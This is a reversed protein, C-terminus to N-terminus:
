PHSILLDFREPPMVTAFYHDEASSWRAEWDARYAHGDRELLQSRRLDRPIDMLVRLDLLDHLEPRCSYAGEVIIVPTARAVLPVPALPVVESEWDEADWDFSHWEAARGSRLSDLVERQRRWDIVRDAREAASRRDWTAASGGAYFQDGEIVTVVGDDGSKAFGNSVAAALTSKGTGSRGDIGVILPGQGTVLLQRLRDILTRTPEAVWSGAASATAGDDLGVGVDHSAAASGRDSILQALRDLAGKM